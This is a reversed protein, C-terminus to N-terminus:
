QASERWFFRSGSCHSPSPSHTSRPPRACLHFRLLGAHPTAAPLPRLRRTCAHPPARSGRGARWSEGHLAASAGAGATGDNYGRASALGRRSGSCSASIAAPLRASLLFATPPPRRPAARWPRPPTLEARPRLRLSLSRRQLRPASATAATAATQRDGYGGARQRQGHRPGAAAAAASGPGARNGGEM